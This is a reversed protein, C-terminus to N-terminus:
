NIITGKFTNNEIIRKFNDLDKGDAVIVTIKEKKALRAAVPDVPSHLGPLWKQPIMKLYDEWKLERIPKAKKDKQPDSTYVYSPKGLIIVKKIKLDVAIQVSDFDTSWGPDWGSGIIIPYKDFGKLRFREDFVVPNAKNRFIVRLLHANIRTAHIGLWDKDEDVIKTIKVAAEQYQRAVSGGGAVLIFKKGKKLEKKLFLHFKSLFDIDIEKPCIISGGIAVVFKNNKLM